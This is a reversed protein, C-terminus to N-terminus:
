SSNSETAQIASLRAIALIEQLLAVNLHRLVVHVNRLDTETTRRKETQVDRLNGIIPDQRDHRHVNKPLRL